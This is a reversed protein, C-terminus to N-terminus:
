NLYQDYAGDPLIDSVRRMDYYPSTPSIEIKRKTKKTAKAKYGKYKKEMKELEWVYYKWREDERSALLRYSVDYVVVRTYKFEINIIDDDNSMITMDPVYKVTVSYEKDSYPLYLYENGDYDRMLTYRNRTNMWFDRNDIYEIKIWNLYVESIKNVWYPVRHWVIIRDYAEILDTWSVTFTWNDYNFYNYFLWKGVLFTGQIALPYSESKTIDVTHEDVSVKLWNLGKFWYHQLRDRSNIEDFLVWITKNVEKVLREKPYIRSYNTRGIEDYIDNVLDWMTTIWDWAVDREERMFFSSTISTVPAVELTIEDGKFTYTGIPAGDVVVDQIHSIYWSTKFTKNNWDIINELAENEILKLM